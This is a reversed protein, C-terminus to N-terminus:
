ALKVEIMGADIAMYGYGKHLPDLPMSEGEIFDPHLFKFPLDVYGQDGNGLLKGQTIAANIIIRSGVPLDTQMYSPTSVVVAIRDFPWPNRLAMLNGYGAKTPVPVIQESPMLLGDNNRKLPKTYMRVLVKNFFHLKSYDEDITSINDNYEILKNNLDEDFAFVDVTDNVTDGSNSSDDFVPTSDLIDRMPRKMFPKDQKNVLSARKTKAM